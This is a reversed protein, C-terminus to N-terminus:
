SYSVPCNSIQTSRVALLFDKMSPLTLKAYFEKAVQANKLQRKTYGGQNKAVTNVLAAMLEPPIYLHLGQKIKIFEKSGRNTHV